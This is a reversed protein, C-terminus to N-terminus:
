EYLPLDTNWSICLSARTERRYNLGKNNNYNLILSPPPRWNTSFPCTWIQPIILYFIYSGFKNQPYIVDNRVMGLACKPRSYLVSSRCRIPRNRRLYLQCDNKDANQKTLTISQRTFYVLSPVQWATVHSSVIGNHVITNTYRVKSARRRM